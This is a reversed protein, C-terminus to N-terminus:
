GDFRVDTFTGDADQWVSVTHGWFLDGDHYYAVASGRSEVQIGELTLRAQFQEATLPPGGEVHHWSENHIALLDTAAKATFASQQTLARSFAARAQPTVRQDREDDPTGVSVAVPELGDHLAVHGEWYSCLPQWTLPGFFEDHTVTLM